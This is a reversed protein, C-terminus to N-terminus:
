QERFWGLDIAGTTVNRERERGSRAASPTMSRRVRVVSRIAVPVSTLNSGSFTTRTFETM